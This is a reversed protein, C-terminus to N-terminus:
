ARPELGYAVWSHGLRRQLLRRRGAKLALAGTATLAVSLVLVVALTAAFVLILAVAILLAAAGALGAALYALSSAALSRGGAPRGRDPVHDVLATIQGNM